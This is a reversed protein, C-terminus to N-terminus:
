QGLAQEVELVLDEIPKTISNTRSVGEGDIYQYWDEIVMAEYEDGDVSLEEALALVHQAWPYLNNHAVAGLFVMGTPYEDLTALDVAANPGTPAVYGSDFITFIPVIFGDVPSAGPRLHRTVRLRLPTFKTYGPPELPPPASPMPTVVSLPDETPMTGDPTDYRPGFVHDVEIEAIIRGM